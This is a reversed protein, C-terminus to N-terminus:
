ESFDWNFEYDFIKIIDGNKVGKEILKEWVGIKKLINNFRLLNDFTNIPIRCFYYYIKDGTIEFTNSKIRKIEFDKGLEIIKQQDITTHKENIEDEIKELENWMIKKLEELNEYNIASIEIVEVEPNQKKFKNLNVQFIPLDKKNAIVIQKKNLLDVKFNKLENNIENFDQIPNSYESGFDIIHAVIKCREIHKLFQIGLGRGQSAGKILGPLDAVTFANNKYKVLGLQPTLTTFDYNGIKANANSIASLLTSKGACPKGIIGIDSLIKLVIKAKYTEGPLGKEYIKPATNKASKFKANGRGGKGGQAVLYPKEEIIDAVLENNKFVMTGIPVKIYTSDGNAGYLNKPGGNVGDNALIRHNSYLFLLTNKGKDGVFYIHGGNGGDGGDPGGKDVHAERRFSILGDGGKGAKLLLEIEDIFRAM